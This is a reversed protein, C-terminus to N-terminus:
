GGTLEDLERGTLVYAGGLSLAKILMNCYAELLDMTVFADHIDTGLTMAGHSSLMIVKGGAKIQVTVAEHFKALGPTLYPVHGVTGLHYYAFPAYRTDLPRHTMAWAVANPSHAHIVAGVESRHTYAALHMPTESSPKMDGKLQEGSLSMLVLQDETVRGKSVGSPTVIAREGDVRMSINGDIGPMYGKDYLRRCFEIVEKRVEVEKM